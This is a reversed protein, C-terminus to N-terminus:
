CAIPDVRGGSGYSLWGWTQEAEAQNATIADGPHRVWMDSQYLDGGTLHSVHTPQGCLATPTHLDVWPGMPSAATVVSTGTGTCYPCAPNSFALYYTGGRQWMAPAEVFGVPLRASVGSVSLYDPTLREVVLEHSSGTAVHGPIDTRILYGTGDTDVFLNGDGSPAAVEGGQELTWPGGPAPATMVRYTGTFVNFWLVWRGTNPNYVVHPRYCGGPSCVSQWPAPDFMLGVKEWVQLDTSRYANFGCWTTGAVNWQFGCYYSTGFAWYTDGDQVIGGDHADLHMRWSPTGPTTSPAPAVPVPAVPVPAAVAPASAPRPTPITRLSKRATLKCTVTIRKHHAAQRLCRGVRTHDHLQSSHRAAVKLAHPVRVKAAADATTSLMLPVLALAVILVARRTWLMVAAYTM